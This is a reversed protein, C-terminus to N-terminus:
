LQPPDYTGPERCYCAMETFGESAPVQNCTTLDVQNGNVTAGGVIQGGGELPWIACNVNFEGCLAACSKAVTSPITFECTLGGTVGYCGYDSISATNGPLANKATTCSRGCAGCQDLTNEECSGNCAIAFEGPCIPAGAECIGGSGQPVSSVCSGCHETSTNFNFCGASCPGEAAADCGLHINVTRTSNHGAQDFFRVVMARQVGGVPGDITAVQDLEQWSLDLTYTGEGSPAFTKYVDGSPTAVEGGLLDQVGDPDSVIVSFRLTDSPTISSSNTSLSVFVPGEPDQQDIPGSDVESPDSGSGGSCAASLLLASLLTIPKM